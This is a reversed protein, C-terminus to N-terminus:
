NFESKFCRWINRLCRRFSIIKRENRETKGSFIKKRYAYYQANGGYYKKVNKLFGKPYAIGAEDIYEYMKEDVIKDYIESGPIGVYVNRGVYDPRIRGILKETLVGDEETEIPSEVVFSAYTKIGAKRANYFAKEFQEVTEGKKFYELMKPSGSEVGIYFMTCGADAMLKVYEYDDFDDVRTECMWKININKELLLKCFSETRNKNLTFHDERFFISKAGYYKIMKEVDEVVREASMFRYTKGWIAKVSCFTCNFPCGRSTNMTYCPYMGPINFPTNWDYKKHILEEWAPFPLSDMDEVKEGYVIRENIEGNLLKPLSIDGEGIFVHDVYEPITKVGVSTHPGGVIIKGNWLGKKRKAELKEFMELTSRFCVTNSYIGVYDINKDEVFTGDLIDTKGLYEDSFFVEHGYNKLVSILSAVGLPPRKEQTSFGSREPAASTLFLIKKMRNRQM